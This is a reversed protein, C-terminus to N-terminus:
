RPLIGLGIIDALGRALRRRGAATSLDFGAIARTADASGGISAVGITTLVLLARQDVRRIVGDAEFARMRRAPESMADNLRSAVYALREESGPSRDSLLAPLLGPRSVGQELFTELRGVLDHPDVNSRRAIADDNLHDVAARWLEDKTPYHHQITALSVGVSRAVGRMTLARYGGDALADLAAGIIQAPDIKGTGKPRGRGRRELPPAAETM